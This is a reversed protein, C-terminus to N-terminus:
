FLYGISFGLRPRPVIRKSSFKNNFRNTFTSPFTRKQTLYALGLGVYLDVTLGGYNIDALLRNGVTWAYEYAQERQKYRAEGVNVFGKQQAFRVEHSVYFMGRDKKYKGYFKQRFDVSFGRSYLLSDPVSDARFHDRIATYRLEHGLREQMFYEVSIPVQNRVVAFPNAAIIWGHSEGSRRIFPNYSRKRRDKYTPLAHSVVSNRNFIPPNNDTMGLEIEDTGDVLKPVLKYYGAVTSDKNYLVWTNIQEGNKIQGKKKLGGSLYFGTYDGLGDKFIAMGELSGDPYYYFWEGDHKDEKFQGLIKVQGDDYYETYSGTGNNLVAEGKEDGADTFLKWVGDRMGNAMIGESSVVGNKHYFQWDGSRTGNLYNGSSAITDNEYYYSWKGNKLGNSEYGESQIKGDRYFYTWFGESLNNLVPGRMKVQKDYYYETYTGSGLVYRAIAKEQGDEYFYNWEGDMKNKVFNGTKYTQGNEYNYVWVSDKKRNLVKGSKKLKGNEYFYSLYNVSDNKYDVNKKLIGSEYNYIWKGVPQNFKFSGSIKPVGQQYFQVYSGHAVNTDSELVEIVKKLGLATDNGFWYKLKTTQGSALLGSLLLFIYFVRKM